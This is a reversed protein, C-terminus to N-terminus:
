TFFIHHIVHIEINHHLHNIISGYNRDVTSFAGLFYEWTEDRYYLMKEDTHQLFTVLDLWFCFIFYPVFYGNLLTIIDWNVLLYVLFAVVSISSIAAGVRENPKFMPSYPNFHNGTFGGKSSENILYYPYSVFFVIYPNFRIYRSIGYNEYDTETM